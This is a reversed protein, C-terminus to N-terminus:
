VISSPTDKDDKQAFTFTQDFEFGAYAVLAIVFINTFFWRWDTYLELLMDVGMGSVVVLFIDFINMLVVAVVGLVIGRVFTPPLRKFYWKSCVLVLPIMIIWTVVYLMTPIDKPLTDLSVGFIWYLLTFLVAGVLYLALAFIIARKINLIHSM